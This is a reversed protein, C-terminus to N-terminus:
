ESRRQRPCSRITPMRSPSDRAQPAAARRPLHVRHPPCSKPKSRAQLDTVCVHSLLTLTLAHHYTSRLTTYSMASPQRLNPRPVNSLLPLTSACYWAVRALCCRGLPNVDDNTSVGSLCLAPALPRGVSVWLRIWARLYRHANSLAYGRRAHSLIRSDPRTSARANWFPRSRPPRPPTIPLQARNPKRVRQNQNRARETNGHPHPPRINPDTGAALSTGRVLGLFRALCLSDSHTRAYNSPRSCAHSRASPLLLSPFVPATTTTCNNSYAVSDDFIRLSCLLCSFFFPPCYSLTRAPFELSSVGVM